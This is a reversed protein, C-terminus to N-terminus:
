TCVRRVIEYMLECGMNLNDVTLFENHAHFGAREEASLLCPILGYAPIGRQRLFRNDTALTTLAPVVIADETAETLVDQMVSYLQTETSSPEASPEPELIREIQVSDDAIHERVAEIWQEVSEGPLLRCDITAESRAPIVNSKFGSHIVTVNLTNLFMAHAMLDRRLATELAEADEPSPVLGAASLRELTERTQPTTTLGREWDALRALARILRSTSTDTHPLSGHGPAGETTLRLWCVTKEDTGVFFLRAQEGAFDTLGSGGENIAFEVDLIDPRNRTVWAMGETGAAEEDPLACFVLDRRLPLGQRKVLLTAMLQMVGAGKMDVAGRGHIRGDRVIGEFPPVDWYAEEVPVVDSHNCLMLPRRSGDGPIRAVILERGPATEVYECAIGEAELTAGLFRAAAAENGPPNSTDIRLYGVLIDLAEAFVEDWDIASGSM